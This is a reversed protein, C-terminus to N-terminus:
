FYLVYWAEIEGLFAREELGYGVVLGVPVMLPFSAGIALLKHLTITASGAGATQAAPRGSGKALDSSMSRTSCRTGRPTLAHVHLLSGRLM